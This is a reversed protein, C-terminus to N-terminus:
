GDPWWSDPCGSGLTSGLASLLWGPFVLQLHYGDQRWSILGYADPLVLSSLLCAWQLLGPHQAPHSWKEKKIQEM